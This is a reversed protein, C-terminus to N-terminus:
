ARTCPGTRAQGRSPSDWRTRPASAADVNAISVVAANTHPPPSKKKKKEKKRKKKKRTSIKKKKM